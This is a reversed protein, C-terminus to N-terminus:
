ALKALRRLNNQELLDGMKDLVKARDCADMNAIKSKANFAAQVALEAERQSSKQVKAILSDDIPSKIAFTDSAELWQGNILIKYITENNKVFRISDFISM